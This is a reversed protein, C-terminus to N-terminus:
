RLAVLNTRCLLQAQLGGVWAAEKLQAPQIAGVTQTLNEIFGKVYRRGRRDQAAGAQMLDARPARGYKQKPGM